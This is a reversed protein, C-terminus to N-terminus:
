NQLLVLSQELVNKTRPLGPHGKYVITVARRLDDFEVPSLETWKVVYM